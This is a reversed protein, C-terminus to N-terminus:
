AFLKTLNFAQSWVQAYDIEIDLNINETYIMYYDDSFQNSFNSFYIKPNLCTTSGILSPINNSLVRNLLPRSSLIDVQDDINIIAKEFLIDSDYHEIHGHYALDGLPALLREVWTTKGIGQPGLLLFCKDNIGLFRMAAASSRLWFYLRDRVGLYAPNEITEALERIHNKGDWQPLSNIFNEFAKKM